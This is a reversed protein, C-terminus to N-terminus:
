ACGTFRSHDRDEDDRNDHQQRRQGDGEPAPSEALLTCGAQDSPRERTREVVQSPKAAAPARGANQLDNHARLETTSRRSALGRFGGLCASRGWDSIM